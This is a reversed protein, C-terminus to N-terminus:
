YASPSIFNLPSPLHHTRSIAGSDHFGSTKTAVRTTSNKDVDLIITNDIDDAVRVVRVVPALYTDLAAV